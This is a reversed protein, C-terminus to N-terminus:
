MGDAEGFDDESDGSTPVIPWSHGCHCYGWLGFLLLFFNTAPKGGCSGSNLDPDLWTHDTTSLTANPCTKDRTSRNGRGIKMGGIGGCDGDGIMRPQYLLGTLPRLVWIGEASILFFLCDFIIGDYTEISCWLNPQKPHYNASSVDSMSCIMVCSWKLLGNDLAEVLLGRPPKRHYWGCEVRSSLSTPESM